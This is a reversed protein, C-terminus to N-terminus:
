TDRYIEMADSNKQMASTLFKMIELREEFSLNQDEIKNILHMKLTKLDISPHLLGPPPELYRKEDLKPPPQFPSGSSSASSERVLQSAQPPEIKLPNVPNKTDGWRRNRPKVLEWKEDELNSEDNKKTETSTPLLPPVSAATQTAEQGVVYAHFFGGIKEKFVTAPAMAKSKNDCEKLFTQM